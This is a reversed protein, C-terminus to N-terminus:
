KENEVLKTQTIAEHIRITTLIKVREGTGMRENDPATSEVLGFFFTASLVAM